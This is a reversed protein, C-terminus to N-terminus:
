RTGEDVLQRISWGRAEAAAKFLEFAKASVSVTYNKHKARKKARPKPAIQGCTPCKM